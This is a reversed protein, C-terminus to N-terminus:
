MHDEHYVYHWEFPLIYSTTCHQHSPNNNRIPQLQPQQILAVRHGEDHLLRTAHCGRTAHVNQVNLWLCDVLAARDYHARRVIYLLVNGDELFVVGLSASSLRKGTWVCVCVRVCVCM